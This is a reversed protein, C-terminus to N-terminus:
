NRDDKRKCGGVCSGSVRGVTSSDRTRTRMCDDIAPACVHGNRAGGHRFLAAPHGAVRHYVRYVNSPVIALHMFYSTCMHADHHRRGPLATQPCNGCTPQSWFWHASVIVLTTRGIGALVDAAQLRGSHSGWRQALPSCWAAEAAMGRMCHHVHVLLHCAPPLAAARSGATM